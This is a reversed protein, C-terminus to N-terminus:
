EEIVIGADIGEIKWVKEFGKGKGFSIKSRTEQEIFKLNEKVYLEFGEDTDIFVDVQETENLQMEKRMEQIRRIVERAMAESYLEDDLTKDIYVMGGDFEEAVINGPLKTEFTLDESTLTFEKNDIEAKYENNEDISNKIESADLENLKKVVAKADGKFKPGISAFNPKAILQVEVNEISLEKANAMKLIIDRTGNIDLPEKPTVTVKRIPWRLKIDAEQRAALACEIIKQAMAMDGELKKDILKEDAKIWGTFHVSEEGTMDRYIYEALHPTVPAMLRCLGMLITHLTYYVSVKRPDSSEIWVRDRVLKIYWRSLELVFDYVPRVADHLYVKDMGDTVELALSNFKSLIWKDEIELAGPDDKDFEYGDIDMYNRAFSYTNWLINLMKGIAQMGEESFRLDEWPATTWLMYFRFTDAGYKDVMELPDIM